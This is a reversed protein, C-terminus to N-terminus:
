PAQEGRGPGGDRGEARPTAACPNVAPDAACPNVACPNVAPKAAYPNAAAPSAAPKAACPSIGTLHTLDSGNRYSAADGRGGAAGSCAGVFGIVGVMLAVRLPFRQMTSVELGAPSGFGGVRRNRIRGTSKLSRM